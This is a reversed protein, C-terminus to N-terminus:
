GVSPNDSVSSKGNGEISSGFFRKQIVQHLGSPEDRQGRIVFDELKYFLQWLCVGFCKRAAELGSAQQINGPFSMVM